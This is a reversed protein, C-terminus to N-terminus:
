GTHPSRAAPKWTRFAYIQISPSLGQQQPIVHRSHAFIYPCLFVHSETPMLELMRMPLPCLLPRIASHPTPVPHKCALCNRGLAALLHVSPNKCLPTITQPLLWRAALRFPTKQPLLLPGSTLQVMLSVDLLRHQSVLPRPSSSNSLVTKVFSPGSLEGLLCLPRSETGLVM